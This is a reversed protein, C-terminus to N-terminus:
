YSKNKRLCVMFGITYCTYMFINASTLILDYLQVFEPSKSNSYYKAYILIPTVSLHFVLAGIGIYFPLMKYFNLIKESQLIQFLFFAIIMMLMIAGLSFNVSSVEVFFDGWCFLGITLYIVFSVIIYQIIKKQKKSEIYSNFFTMYVSFSIIDYINYVWINNEFVSGKLPYLFEISDIGLPLWAFILEFLVTFWLFYVLYRSYKDERYKTIFLTGSLAAVIEFFNIILQHYM